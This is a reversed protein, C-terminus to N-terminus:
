GLFFSILQILLSMGRKPGFLGHGIVFAQSGTSPRSFNMTIPLLDDPVSELQLLAVDWPGKCVYVVKAYCWVGPKIHDLRVRINRHNDYTPSSKYGGQENAAFPYLIPMKLPSTQSVQNSAVRNVLYATGELMSSIRESNTGYGGGNVHEKGFRWPELLHANTLILGQSNLLVGSAWVGDGITVLCVSTM